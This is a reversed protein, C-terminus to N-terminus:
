QRRTSAPSRERRFNCPPRCSTARKGFTRHYWCDDFQEISGDRRRQSQTESQSARAPTRLRPRRQQEQQEWQVNTLVKKFENILKTVESSQAGTATAADDMYSLTSPPRYAAQVTTAANVHRLEMNEMVTDAVRLKEQTTGTVVIVVAQVSSPLRSAWLDLLVQEGLAAGATQLMDYYLRSPKKDGLPMDQLVRSLRRQQSDTFHATLQNRVYEYRGQVPAADLVPRLETIRSAPLQSCVTDFKRADSTIGAARFYFDVMYFWNNVDAEVFQPMQIRAYFNANVQADQAGDDLPPAGNHM